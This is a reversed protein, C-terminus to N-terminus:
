DIKDRQYNVTVVVRHWGDTVGLTVLYPVRTTITGSSGYSFQVNRFISAASDALSRATDTGSEEPVYVDIQIIGPYRNLPRSNVSAQRAEGNRITLAVWSGSKPQEFKQNEWKIRDATTGTWNNAFQAEIAVREDQFSM